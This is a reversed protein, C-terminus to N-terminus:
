RPGSCVRQRLCGVVRSPAAVAAGENADGRVCAVRVRYRGDAALVPAVLGSAARDSRARIIPDDPRYSLQYLLPSM